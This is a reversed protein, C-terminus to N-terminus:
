AEGLYMVVSGAGLEVTTFRGVLTIGAKFTTATPIVDANTGHGGVVANTGINSFREM